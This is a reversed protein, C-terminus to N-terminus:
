SCCIAKGAGPPCFQSCGAGPREAQEPWPPLAGLWPAPWVRLVRAEERPTVWLGHGHVLGLAGYARVLIPPWPHLGRAPADPIQLPVAVTGRAPVWAWVDTQIRSYPGVRVLTDSRARNHLTVTLTFRGGARAPTQTVATVTVARARGVMGIMEGMTVSLGLGALLTKVLTPDALADLELLVALGMLLMGLASPAIWPRRQGMPTRLLLPAGAPEKV